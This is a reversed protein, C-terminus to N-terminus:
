FERLISSFSEPDTDGETNFFLITSNSGIGIHEKLSLYKKDNMLAIFGALGAAGSEGSIIRGDAEIPNYLLKMAEKAYDDEIVLTADVGSKLIEWASMSPVGCNLGAMITNQNGSPTSRYGNKFSQLIGDSTFPEVLILKPRNTSYRNLYYWIASAAWSGVGAQLFVVDIKSSPLTHLSNELELFHTLYGAMIQAPIEEYGEWATDQVLQWGEKISMAEAYACTEDYNKDLQIVTGGEKSIADIRFKTTAKPVYILSEKGFKQASWAVARGHNGDTATCFKEVSPKSQVTKYISYIAGLGKFANLGFRFSEDKVYISGVKYRESLSPLLILPTPSYYPLSSHFSYADSNSLIQHTLNQPLNNKPDHIHFWNNQM